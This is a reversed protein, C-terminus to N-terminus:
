ENNKNKLEVRNPIKLITYIIKLHYKVTNETIFLANGIEKNTKGEKVLNIIEIQRETLEHEEKIQKKIEVKSENKHNNEFAISMSILENRLQKNELESLIRNKRKRYALYYAAVLSLILVSILSILSTFIQKEKLLKIEQREKALNNELQTITGGVNNVNRETAIIDLTKQEKIAQAINNTRKHYDVIEYQVQQAFALNSHRKTIELAEELYSKVSDNENTEKFFAAKILYPTPLFQTSGAKLNAIATDLKKKGIATNKHYLDNSGDIALYLNQLYDRAKTVQEPSIQQLLDAVQDREGKHNAILLRELNIRTMLYDKINTKQALQHAKNLNNEVEHFNELNKYVISKTIHAMALDINDSNPNRLIEETRLIADKHNNNFILLYIEKELLSTTTVQSWSSLNHLVVLLLLPFYFAKNSNM